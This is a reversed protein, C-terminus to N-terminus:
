SGKRPAGWLLFWGPSGTSACLLHDLFIRAMMQWYTGWDPTLEGTWSVQESQMRRYSIHWLMSVSNQGQSVLSM